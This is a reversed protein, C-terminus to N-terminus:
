HDGRPRGTEVPRNPDSTWAAMSGDYLRINAYGLLEHTNCYTIIMADRSRLQPPVLSALASVPKLRHGADDYLKSFPLNIAGPIRGARSVLESKAKGLYQDASRADVLVSDGGLSAMVQDTTARIDPRLDITFNASTRASPGRQIPDTRDSGWATWGGNLMSVNQLGLYKLVWYAFTAGGLETGDGGSPVIVVTVDASIGVASLNASLTEVPLLTWDPQRWFDPYEGNVAGPIHGAEFEQKPRIDIVLLGKEGLHEKLWAASVLPQVATAAWGTTINVTVLLVIAAILRMTSFHHGTIMNARDSLAHPLSFYPQGSGEALFVFDPALTPLLWFDIPDRCRGPKRATL